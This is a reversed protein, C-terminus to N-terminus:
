SNNKPPLQIKPNDLDPSYLLIMKGLVQVLLASALEALQNALQFRDGLYGDQIKIKVIESNNFAEILTASTADTIGKQGIFVTAKLQNGLGRLYRKQKGSLNEM